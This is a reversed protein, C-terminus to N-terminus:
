SDHSLPNIFPGIFIPYDELWIFMLNIWILKIILYVIHYHALPLM